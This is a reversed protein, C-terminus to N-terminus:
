RKAIHVTIIIEHLSVSFDICTWLYVKNELMSLPVRIVKRCCPLDEAQTFEYFARGSEFSDLTLKEKVFESM